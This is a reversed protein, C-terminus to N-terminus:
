GIPSASSVRRTATLVTASATGAFRMLDRTRVRQRARRTGQLLATAMGAIRAVKAAPVEVRGRQVDIVLRLYEMHPTPVWSCKTPHTRLGLRAFLEKVEQAHHEDRVVM